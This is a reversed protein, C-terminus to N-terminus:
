DRLDSKLTRYELRDHEYALLLNEYSIFEWHGNCGYKHWMYNPGVFVATHILIGRLRFVLITNVSRKRDETPTTYRWLWQNMEEEYVHQVEKMHGFYLQTANWCNAPSERKGNLKIVIEPLNDVDVGSRKARALNRDFWRRVNLM